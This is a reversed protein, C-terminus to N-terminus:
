DTVNLRGILVFGLQQLAPQPPLAGVGRVVQREQCDTFSFIILSAVEAVMRSVRRSQTTSCRSIYRRDPPVFPWIMSIVATPPCWNAVCQRILYLPWLLPFIKM